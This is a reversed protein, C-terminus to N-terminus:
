MLSLMNIEVETVKYSQLTQPILLFCPCLGECLDHGHCQTYNTPFAGFLVPKSKIHIVPKSQMIQNKLRYNRLYFNCNCIVLIFIM